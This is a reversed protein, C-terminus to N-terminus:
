GMEVAFLTRKQLFCIPAHINAEEETKKRGSDLVSKKASKDRRSEEEETANPPSPIEPPSSSDLDCSDLGDPDSVVVPFFPGDDPGGFVITFSALGGKRSLLFEYM